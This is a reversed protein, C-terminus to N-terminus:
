GRSSAVPPIIDVQRASQSYCLLLLLDSSISSLVYCLRLLEIKESVYKNMMEKLLM